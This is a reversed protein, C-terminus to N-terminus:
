GKLTYETFFTNVSYFALWVELKGTVRKSVDSKTSIFQMNCNGRTSAIQM